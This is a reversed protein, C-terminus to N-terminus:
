RLWWLLDPHRQEASSIVPLKNALVLTYGVTGAPIKEGAAEKFDVKEPQPYFGKQHSIYFFQILDLKTEMM